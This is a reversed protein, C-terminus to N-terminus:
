FLQQLYYKLKKGKLGKKIIKGSPDILLSAPIAMIGYKNKVSNNTDLVNVWDMNDKRIANRWAADEDYVAVSIINFNKKKFEHYLNRLNPNEVRCPQCWSAWFDLLIYQGHYSYLKVSSGSSDALTFDPAIKGVEAKRRANILNEFFTLQEQNSVKISKFRTLIEFALDLNDLEAFYALLQVSMYATPNESIFDQFIKNQKSILEENKKELIDILDLNDVNYANSIKNGLDIFQSDLSLQKLRQAIDNEKSGQVKINSFSHADGFIKIVSNELIFANYGYNFDARKLVYMSPANVSGIFLFKGNLDTITSDIRGNQTYYAEQILYLKINSGNTLQGEIRYGAHELTKTQLINQNSFFTYVLLLKLLMLDVLLNAM